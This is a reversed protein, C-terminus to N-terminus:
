YNEALVEYFARPNKCAPCEGEIVGGEREPLSLLLTIIEILPVNNISLEQTIKRLYRM